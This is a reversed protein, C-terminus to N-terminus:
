AIIDIIDLVVKSGTRTPSLVPKAVIHYSRGKELKGFYRSREMDPWFATIPSNRFNLKIEIDGDKMKFSEVKVNFEYQPYPFRAGFPELQSIEAILTKDLVKSEPFAGDSFVVPSLARGVSKEYSSTFSKIAENLENLRAHDCEFRVFGRDTESAKVDVAEEVAGVLGNRILSKPAALTCSMVTAKKITLKPKRHSSLDLTVEGEATTETYIGRKIGFISSKTLKAADIMSLGKIGSKDKGMLDFTPAYQGKAKNVLLIDGGELEYQNPKLSKFIDCKLEDLRDVSLESENFQVPASVVVPKGYKWLIKSSINDLMSPKASQLYISASPLGAQQFAMEAQVDAVRFSEKEQARIEGKGMLRLYRKAESAKTSQLFKVLPFPSQQMYSSALVRSVLTSSMVSSGIGVNVEAMEAKMAVWQELESSNIASLGQKVFARNIPERVDGLEGFVSCAGYPTIYGMKQDKIGVVGKKVFVRRLNMLLVETLITLSIDKPQFNDNPKNPNLFGFLPSTYGKSVSSCDLSVVDLIFGKKKIRKRMADLASHTSEGAGLAVFLTPCDDGNYLGDLFRESYPTDSPPTFLLKIRYPVAGFTKCLADELLAAAAVSDLTYECCITIQESRQIARFLRSSVKDVQSLASVDLDSFSPSLFDKTLVHEPIRRKAIIGAQVESAFNVTAEKFRKPDCSLRVLNLQEM